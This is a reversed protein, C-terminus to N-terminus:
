LDFSQGRRRDTKRRSPTAPGDVYRKLGATIGIAGIVSFLLALGEKNDTKEEPTNNPPVDDFVSVPSAPNLPNLPHTPNTISNPDTISGQAPAETVTAVALFAVVATRKLTAAFGHLAM